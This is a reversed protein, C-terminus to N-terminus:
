PNAFMESFRENYLKLNDSLETVQRFLESFDKKFMPTDLIKQADSTSEAKKILLSIRSMATNIDDVETEFYTRFSDPTDLANLLNIRKTRTRQWGKNLHFLLGYHNMDNMLTDIKSMVGNLRLYFDDGEILQGITGKGESITQTIQKLNASTVTFNATITGINTFVDDEEMQGLALNIKDMSETFSTAGLKVQHVLNEDNIAKTAIEIQDMAGAFSAVARSLNDSNNKFWEKVLDITEEIKHSIDSIQNFTNEIPDISEAYFPTKETIREPISGKPPARPVISISKEGLLGSTQIEIQDSNFVKVNSDIKLTLQYFYLRGLTDSPQTERAHFIETVETVEGVAKGAFLVRTGVNIKNIDSFRVYLIQKEDGVSPRLFFIFGVFLAIGGILFLGILLNKIQNSM